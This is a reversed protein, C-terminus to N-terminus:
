KVGCTQLGPQSIYFYIVHIYVDQNVLICKQVHIYLTCMDAKANAQGRILPKNILNWEKKSVEVDEILPLTYIMISYM